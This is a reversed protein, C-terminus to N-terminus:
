YRIQQGSPYEVQYDFRVTETTSPPLTLMWTIIGTEKDLKGGSLRLSEVKISENRSIPIQDKVTIEIPEDKSNRISIEWANKERVKNGFFNREEFDQVKNREVVISEDRGLSVTLTDNFTDPNIITSGIFNNEFYINGKGALLNLDEWNAMHGVLYASQSLKPITTYSYNTEVESRNVEVTHVKGDSPVTYPSKIRYSFSTQYRSFDTLPLAAEMAMDNEAEDTSAYGTVVVERLAQKEMASVPQYFDVYTPNLSPLISNASPNGSNITIVVDDWDVGTNQYIDAKYSINLPNSIDDSRIDYSPTWGASPSLFNLTFTLSQDKESYVEAIVESFRTQQAGRLENIQSVVKNLQIRGTQISENLEIEDKKLYRARERYLDLFQALEAATLEKNGINSTTNELLRLENQIVSLDSELLTIEQQLSDRQAELAQIQPDPIDSFFYNFRRKMSQVTFTGTAKLQLSNQNLYPTLRNFVFINKGQKLDVDATRQIQAQQRFVTVESISSSTNVTDAPMFLSAIFIHAILIFTM